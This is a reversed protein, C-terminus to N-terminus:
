ARSSILYGLRLHKGDEEKRKELIVVFDIKLGYCLWCNMKLSFSLLVLSFDVKLTKPNIQWFPKGPNQMGLFELSAFQTLIQLSNGTNSRCTRDPLFRHPAGARKPGVNTAVVTPGVTAAVAATPGVAWSFGSVFENHESRRPSSQSGGKLASEEKPNTAWDSKGLCLFITPLSISLSM